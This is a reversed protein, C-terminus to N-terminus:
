KNFYFVVRGNNVLQNLNNINLILHNNQINITAGSLMPSCFVEKASVEGLSIKSENQKLKITKFRGDPINNAMFCEKKFMQKTLINEKLLEKQSGIIFQFILLKEREAESAALLQKKQEAEKAMREKDFNAADREAMVRQNIFQQSEIEEKLISVEAQLEIIKKEKLQINEILAEILDALFQPSYESKLPEDRLKILLKENEQILFKSMSVMRDLKAYNEYKVQKSQTNNIETKLIEIEKDLSMLTDKYFQNTHKIVNQLSDVYANEVKKRTEITAVEQKKGFAYLLVILIVIGAAIAVIGETSLKINRM